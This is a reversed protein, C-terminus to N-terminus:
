VPSSSNRTPSYPPPEAENNNGNPPPNPKQRRAKAAMATGPLLSAPGSPDMLGPSESMDRLVRIKQIMERIEYRLIGLFCLKLFALVCFGLVALSHAASTLWRRLLEGCGTVHVLTPARSEVCSSASSGNNSQIPAPASRCCSGPVRRQPHERREGRLWTSEEFDAPGDVGCCGEEGQLRDWLLRYELDAGYAEALRAKLSDRLAGQLSRFRALWVAGLVADGCLLLLLLTWYARLLREHMRLAGLCGLAQLVGGQLALALYACLLSPHRADLGPLLAMRFDAATWGALSVFAVVSLLLVLNCSYIWLRYYRMAKHLFM